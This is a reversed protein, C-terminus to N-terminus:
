EGCIQTEEGSPYCLLCISNSVPACDPTHMINECSRAWANGLPPADVGWDDWFVSYLAYGVGDQGAFGSGVNSDLGQQQHILKFGKAQSVAELM